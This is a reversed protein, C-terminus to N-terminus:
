RPKRRRKREKSEQERLEIAGKLFGPALDPREDYIQNQIVFVIGLCSAIAHLHTTPELELEVSLEACDNLLKAAAELKTNLRALAESRDLPPPATVGEPMGNERIWTRKARDDSTKWIEHVVLTHLSEVKALHESLGENAIDREGAFQISEQFIVRVLELNHLLRFLAQGRTYPQWKGPKGDAPWRRPPKEAPSPALDPETRYIAKTTDYGWYLILNIDRTNRAADLGIDEIEQCCEVLVDSASRILSLIHEYSRNHDAGAGTKKRSM